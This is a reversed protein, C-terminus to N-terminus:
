HWRFFLSLSLSLSFSCFILVVPLFILNGGAFFNKLICWVRLTEDHLHVVGRLYPTDYRVLALALFLIYYFALSVTLLVRIDEFREDEM